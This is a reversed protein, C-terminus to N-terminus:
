GLSKRLHKVVLQRILAQPTQKKNKWQAHIYLKTLLHKLHLSIYRSTPGIYNPEKTKIGKINRNIIQHPTYTYNRTTWREKKQPPSAATPGCGLTQTKMSSGTGPLHSSPDAWLPILRLYHAERSLPASTQALEAVDDWGCITFATSCLDGQFNGQCKGM